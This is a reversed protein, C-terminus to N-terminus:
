GRHAARRSSFTTADSLVQKVGEYDFIMWFGAQPVYSLPSAQRLQDYIPFPNRRADDSFLDIM